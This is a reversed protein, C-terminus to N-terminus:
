RRGRRQWFHRGTAKRYDGAKEYFYVFTLGVAWGILCAQLFEVLTM